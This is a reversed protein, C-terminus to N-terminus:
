VKPAMAYVYVLLAAGILLPIIGVLYAPESSGREVAGIFVMLALGVASTILGALKLGEKRRRTSISEEQRLFEVASAGGVGAEAIKKLAESRYYAERERRREQSWVVVAIFSFM